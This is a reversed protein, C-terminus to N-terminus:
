WFWRGEVWRWVLSDPGYPYSLISCCCCPLRPDWYHRPSFTLTQGAVISRGRHHVPRAISTREHRRAASPPENVPPTVNTEPATPVSPPASPGPATPITPGPTYLPQQAQAHAVLGAGFMYGGILLQALTFAIITLARMVFKEGSIGCTYCLSKAQKLIKPLRAINAATRGRRMKPSCNGEDKGTNWNLAFSIQHLVPPYSVCDAYSNLPRL